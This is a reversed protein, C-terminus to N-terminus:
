RGEKSGYCTLSMGAWGHLRALIFAEELSPAYFPRSFGAGSPGIDYTRWM